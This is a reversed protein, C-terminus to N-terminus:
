TSILYILNGSSPALNISSTATSGAEENAGSNNIEKVNDPLYDKWSRFLYRTFKRLQRFKCYTAGEASELQQTQILFGKEKFTKELKERMLSKRTRRKRKSRLKRSGSIIGGGGGGSYQQQDPRGQSLASCTGTSSNDSQSSSYGDEGQSILPFTISSSDASPSRLQNGGDIKLNHLERAAPSLPISSSSPSETGRSSSPFSTKNNNNNANSASSSSPSSSPIKLSSPRVPMCVSMSKASKPLSSFAYQCDHQQDGDLLGGGSTAQFLSSQGTNGSPFSKNMSKVASSTGVKDTYFRFNGGSDVSLMKKEQLSPKAGGTFKFKCISVQAGSSPGSDAQGFLCGGAHSSNNNNNNEGVSGGGMMVGTTTTKNILLNHSQNDYEASAAKTAPSLRRKAKKHPNLHSSKLGTHHHHRHDDITIPPAFKIGGKGKSKNSTTTSHGLMAGTALSLQLNVNNVLSLDNNVAKVKTEMNNNNNNNNNRSGSSSMLGVRCRKSDNLSSKNFNNNNFSSDGGSLGERRRGPNLHFDSFLNAPSILPLKMNIAGAYAANFDSLSLQIQSSEGISSTTTDRMCLNLPEEQSESKIRMVGDSLVGKSENNSLMPTAATTTPKGGKGKFGTLSSYSMKSNMKSPVQQQHHHISVNKGVVLPTSTIPVLDPPSSIEWTSGPCSQKNINVVGSYKKNGGKSSTTTTSLVGKAANSSRSPGKKTQFSSSGSPETFALPSMITTTTPVITSPVGTNPENTYSNPFHIGYNKSILHCIDAKKPKRGRRPRTDFTLEGMYPLNNMLLMPAPNTLRPTENIVKGRGSASSPSGSFVRSKNNNKINNRDSQNQNQTEDSDQNTNTTENGSNVVKKSGRITNVSPFLDGSGRSLLQQQGPPSSEKSNNKEVVQQQCQLSSSSSNEHPEVERSAVSIEETNTEDSKNNHVTENVLLDKNGSTIQKEVTSSNVEQLKNKNVEDENSVLLLSEGSSKSDSNIESQGPTPNNNDVSPNRHSDKEHSSQNCQLSSYSASRTKRDTFAIKSSNHHHPATTTTATTAVRLRKSRSSTTTVRISQPEEASVEQSTTASSSNGRLLTKSSSLCGSQDATVPGGLLRRNTLGKEALSQEKQRRTDDEVQTTESEGGTNGSRRKSSRTNPIVGSSTCKTVTNHSSTNNANTVKRLGVSSKHM